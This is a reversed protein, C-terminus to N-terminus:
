GFLGVIIPYRRIGGLELAFGLVAEIGEQAAGSVRLVVDGLDDVPLPFQKPLGCVYFSYTAPAWATKPQVILTRYCTNHLSLYRPPVTQQGRHAHLRM